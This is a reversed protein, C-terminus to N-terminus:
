STPQRRFQACIKPHFPRQPHTGLTSYPPAVHTQKKLACQLRALLHVSVGYKLLPLPFYKGMFGFASSMSARSASSSTRASFSLYCRM